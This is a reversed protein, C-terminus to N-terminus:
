APTRRREEPRAALDALARWGAPAALWLILAMLAASTLCWLCTAGIVFPELFTLYISFVVGFLAMLLLAADALRRSGAQGYFWVLLIAVYGAVGILGIPIGFIRAYPSQQVTNCDGVVGCVAESATTEVHALYGAVALGVLAAVPLLWSEPQGTARLLMVTVLLLAAMVAATIPTVGADGGVMLAAALGLSALAAARLVWRGAPGDMWELLAAPRQSSLAQWGAALVVGASAVLGVLVIVALANAVPDARLRDWFTTTEIKVPEEATEEASDPEYVMRYLEEIGPIAPLGIGGSALGQRIVEPARAPIEISGVMVEDGIILMPVGMSDINLSQVALMMIQGGQRGSADIFLVRLQDGFEAQIAPWHNNIVEHCHPCTPSYFFVGYVVPEDAGYLSVPAIMFGVALLVWVWVLLRRM